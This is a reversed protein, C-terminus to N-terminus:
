IVGTIGKHADDVGRSTVAEILGPSPSEMHWQWQKQWGVEEGAGGGGREGLVQGVGHYCWVLVTGVAASGGSGGGATSSGLMQNHCKTVAISAFSVPPQLIPRSKLSPHKHQPMTPKELVDM